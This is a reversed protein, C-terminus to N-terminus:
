AIQEVVIEIPDAAGALVTGSGSGSARTLTMQYVHSGVAPVATVCITRGDAIFPSVPILIRWTGSITGATSDKLKVEFVDGAVTGNLAYFSATIKFRKVGDGTVSVANAITTEATFPGINATGKADVAVPTFGRWTTADNCTWLVGAVDAYVPNEATASATLANREAINAVPIIAIVSDALAKIHTHPAFLDGAVPYFLKRWNLAM